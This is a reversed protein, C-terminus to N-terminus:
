PYQEGYDSRETSWGARTPPEYSKTLGAFGSSSLTIANTSIEHPPVPRAIVGTAGVVQFRHGQRRLATSGLIRKSFLDRLSNHGETSTQLMLKGRRHKLGLRISEGAWKGVSVFRMSLRYM